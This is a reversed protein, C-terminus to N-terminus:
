TPGAPGAVYSLCLDLDRLALVVGAHCDWSSRMELSLGFDPGYFQWRCEDFGMLFSSSNLERFVFPSVPTAFLCMSTANLQYSVQSASLM